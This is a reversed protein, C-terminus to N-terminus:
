IIPNILNNSFPIRVLEDIPIPVPKEEKAKMESQDFDDPRNINALSILKESTMSHLTPPIQAAEKKATLSAMANNYVILLLKFDQYSCMIHLPQITSEIAVEKTSTKTTYDFKVEFPEIISVSTGAQNDFHCRFVELERAFISMKQVASTSVYSFEVTTKAILARSDSKTSDEILCIEPNTIKVKVEMTTLQFNAQSLRAQSLNSFSTRM